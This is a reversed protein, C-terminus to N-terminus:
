LQVRKSRESMRKELNAIAIEDRIEVIVRSLMDAVGESSIKEPDFSSESWDSSKQKGWTSEQSGSSMQCNQDHIPVPEMVDISRLGDNAEKILEWLVEKIDESSSPTSPTESTATLESTVKGMCNVENVPALENKIECLVESIVQKIQVSDASEMKPRSIDPESLYKQMDDKSIETSEYAMHGQVYNARASYTDSASKEIVFSSQIRDKVKEILRKIFVKSKAVVLLKM